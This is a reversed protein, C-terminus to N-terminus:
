SHEAYILEETNSDYAILHVAYTKLTIEVIERKMFGLFIDIPVALFLKHDPMKLSLAVRYNLYQGLAAHFDHTKSVELFSKVEVVIKETGREATLLREAAIDIFYRTELGFRLELPDATIRWGDKELANRVTQHFLDRAM